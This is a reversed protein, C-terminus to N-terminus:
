PTAKTSLLITLAQVLWVAAWIVMVTKIHRVIMLPRYDFKSVWIPVLAIVGAIISAVMYAIFMGTVRNSNFAAVFAGPLIVKAGYDEILNMRSVEKDFFDAKLQSDDPLQKPGEDNGFSTSILNLVLLALGILSEIAILLSMPQGVLTPLEFSLAIWFILGFWYVINRHPVAGQKLLERRSNEQGM